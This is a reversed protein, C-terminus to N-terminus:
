EYENVIECIKIIDNEKVGPHNPVYFGYADVIQINKYRIEPKLYKQMFPQKTIDGCIIPRCEIGNTQLKKVIETRKPHIIPYAFNSILNNEKFEQIKWWNNKLYKNYLLYNNRRTTIINYLKNVQFRGLYAQLDTGRLNFGPYYFTYLANFDNVNNRERLEKKRNDNLDRDWGHSRIMKLIEDCQIDNTCVFGGEITTIHHGYYLSFTSMLGFTGALKYNWSSGMTECSDELLEINNEYCISNIENMDCMFGLPHVLFIASPNYDRILVKLHNTDITLNIQNIDCVIPDFGLQILPAVTTSWCLAPVIVRNNRLKKRLKLTYLMLLNASSGSNCYTCYKVGLRTAYEEELHKVHVGQTLKPNTKLWNILANIEREEISDGILKVMKLGVM